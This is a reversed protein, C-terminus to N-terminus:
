LIGKEQLEQIAKNDIKGIPTHPIKELVVIKDPLYSPPLTKSIKEFLRKKVEESDAPHDGRRMVIALRFHHGKMEDIVAYCYADYVEPINLAIDEIDSPCLTEGNVKVTRRLRQRYTLYGEEDLSGYDGTRLYRVGDITIFGEESPANLYGSMVTDGSICIEGLKNPALPKLTEVDIIIEKLGDLCQGVTGKKEHGRYNVNAVACTESLGYGEFLRARQGYKEMTFNWRELLSQPVADGGVFSTNQAALWPGYFADRSLLANFLAPVGIICNAYGKKLIAIADKTKFKMMLITCGGISLITHAGMSLGYGHFLPIATLMKINKAEGGVLHFGEYALTNIAGNSLRVIKPDGNTGGTNLYVADDEKKRPTLQFAKKAIPRILWYRSIGKLTHSMFRVAIMKHLSVHRYPNIAVVIFQAPIQQRYKAATLSLVFLMKSHTKELMSAMMAPPTLPHINYSIAGVENIAYLLFLADPCNPLSVAIVDNEKVGMKRLKRAAKDVQSLFAKYTWVKNEFRAAPDKAHELASAKLQEYLTAHEM